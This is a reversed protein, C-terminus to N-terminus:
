DELIAFVMRDKGNLDQRVEVQYRELSQEIIEKVDVGQQHGIEFAVLSPKQEWRQIQDVISHYAALGNREAFLALEPDFDVVTDDMLSQESYDIYPPNSVVVDVPQDQVPELFDGQFFDVSAGHNEANAKAMALAETSLDTALMNVKHDLAMTIAIVGSGTGVDVVTPNELGLKRILDITGVVLEETEPRPILVNENVLFDRGYFPAHGILHQVPVGTEAHKQISQVFVDRKDEPFLDKGYALLMAFSLGLYHELLLDAVRAERGNERLFVSAWRRAEEITTFTNNM